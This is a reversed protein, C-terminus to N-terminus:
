DARYELLALPNRVRFARALALLLATDIREVPAGSLVRLAAPRSIEAEKALQYATGFGRALMHAELNWYIM